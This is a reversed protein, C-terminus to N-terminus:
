YANPEVVVHNDPLSALMTSHTDFGYKSEWTSLSLASSLVQIPASLASSYTNSNITSSTPVDQDILLDTGGPNIVTNGTFTLGSLWQSLFM